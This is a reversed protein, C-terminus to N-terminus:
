IEDTIDTVLGVLGLNSAPGKLVPLKPLGQPSIM